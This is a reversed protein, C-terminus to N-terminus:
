SQEALFGLVLRNFEEPKELNPHHAAGRLVAKCAGAIGAELADAVELMEPQDQDGVIILVPCRIESLRTAAPPNLWQPSAPEGRSYLSTTMERVKARVGPDVEAPIRYPGDTWLQLSLEVAEAVDGRQLAEEEAAFQANLRQSVPDDREEYPHGPLGSGTVTLSSVVTPYTLTFELAVSGSLSLGLVHACEMGLLTLLARLDEVHSYAGAPGGSRGYGRLDYRLVRYQQAFVEFQPDWLQSDVLGGHLLVLPHGQGAVEYYLKGGNIEAYGEHRQEDM